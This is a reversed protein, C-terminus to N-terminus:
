PQHTASQQLPLRNSVTLWDYLFQALFPLMALVGAPVSLGSATFPWLAIAVVTMQLGALPRRFKSPSLARTPKQRVARWRLAAIYAYYAAGVLLYSGHLKGLAVAQIPAILLGFADMSTDLKSGMVSISNYRRAVWGDLGDLLAATSYSAATWLAADEARISVFLSGACLAILWGRLLTITNAAGLTQLPPNGEGSFHIARQVVFAFAPLSTLAFFWGRAALVGACLLLM